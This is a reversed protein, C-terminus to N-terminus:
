DLPRFVSASYGIKKEIEILAAVVAAHYQAIPRQEVPAGSSFAAGTTGFQGRLVGTLDNSSKGTYSVIEIVTPSTPHDLLTAVGSAPFKAASTLPITTQGSTISGSLTTVANDAAQILSVVDDLSAPFNITGIPM